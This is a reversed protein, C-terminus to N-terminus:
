FCFHSLVKEWCSRKSYKRVKSRAQSSSAANCNPMAPLRAGRSRPALLASKEDIARWKARGRQSAGKEDIAPSFHCRGSHPVSWFHHLIVPEYISGTWCVVKPIRPKTSSILVIQDQYKYWEIPVEVVFLIM